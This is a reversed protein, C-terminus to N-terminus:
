IEAADNNMKEVYQNLRTVIENDSPLYDGQIFQDILVDIESFEESTLVTKSKKLEQRIQIQYEAELEKMWAAEITNESDLRQRYESLKWVDYMMKVYAQDAENVKVKKLTIGELMSIMDEDPTVPMPNGFSTEEFDGGKLVTRIREFFNRNVRFADMAQGKQVNVFTVFDIEVQDLDVLGSILELSDEEFTEIDLGEVGVVATTLNGDQELRSPLHFRFYSQEEFDGVIQGIQELKNPTISDWWKQAADKAVIINDSVGAESRHIYFSVARLLRPYWMLEQTQLDETPFYTYSRSVESMAQHMPALRSLADKLNIRALNRDNSHKPQVIRPFQNAFNRLSSFFARIKGKEEKFNETDFYKSSTSPYGRQVNLSSLFKQAQEVLPNSSSRIRSDNGELSAEFYRACLKVFELAEKRLQVHQKQWSYASTALYNDLITKNWIQNIHVDFAQVVNERPMAKRANDRSVEYIDANPFPLIIAETCYKEYNPLIGFVMNIRYMSLENAKSVDNDLLYEMYLENDRVELTLTNTDRKIRGILLSKHTSLISQYMNPQTEHIYGLIESMEDVSGKYILEAIEQESWTINLPFDIELQTFWKSLYRLGEYESIASHDISALAEALFNIFSYVDSEKFDYTTLEGLKSKLSNASEVKDNLIGALREISNLKTFPLTDMIFLEIAGREFVDDFISKNQKWYRIPESHMLGDVAFVMDSFKYTKMESALAKFVDSKSDEALQDPLAIFFDYIFSQDLIRFLNLVTELVSVGIILERTLHKSRVPHLGEVYEQDFKVYYEQELQQYVKGHDRTFGITSRIHHTLAQTRLKLNMVDSLAILRLIELKAAGDPQDNLTRIQSTIREEIMQGQTLLYVYEILLGKSEVKEWEPQWNEVSSHIRGNSKLLRFVEGAESISLQIDITRLNIRSVDPRFLHWDEERATVLVKVPLHSIQAVLEGWASVKQNLGDFVLLPIQGIRLRTNVFDALAAVHEIASCYSVEYVSFHDGCWHKSCQWALTSKGQGSSSKIVVVDVERLLKNIADTWKPRPVPLDHAIHGPRAAKGDFFGEADSHHDIEFSIPALLNLQIAENKPAKSFSDTVSQIVQLIDQYSVTEKNRSWKFAHFLLATMYQSEVGANLQFAAIILQEFRKRLEVETIREFEIQGLFATLDIDSIDVGSDRFKHDWYQVQKTTLENNALSALHGKSLKFNHSFRLKAAPTLRYVELFNQLVCMNWFASADKDNKSTKVQVFERNKSHLVDLDEVGELRVRSDEHDPTLEQLLRCCTYLLQFGIGSINVAGGIRQKAIVDLAAEVSDILTPKLAQKNKQQEKKRNRSKSMLFHFSKVPLEFKCHVTQAVSFIKQVTV